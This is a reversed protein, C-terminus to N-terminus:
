KQGGTIELLLKLARTYDKPTYYSFPDHPVPIVTPNYGPINQTLIEQMHSGSARGLTIIMEPRRSALSELSVPGFSLPLSEYSNKMGTRRIMDGLFSKGGAVILPRGSAAVIITKRSSKRSYLEVQKIYRSVKEEALRSKRLLKGLKRYNDIIDKFTRNKKFYYFDIGSKKISELRQVASDEDSALIIKPKLSIIKEVSPNVLTGVVPINRTLPPHYSTVGALLEESELDIIQRTISPSLSVIGATNIEPKVSCSVLLPLAILLHLLKM